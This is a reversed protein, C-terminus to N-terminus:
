AADGPGIMVGSRDHQYMEWAHFPEGQIWISAAAAMARTTRTTKM